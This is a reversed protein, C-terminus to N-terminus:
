CATPAPPLLPLVRARRHHSAWYGASAGHRLAFEAPARASSRVLEVGNGALAVHPAGDADEVEAMDTDSAEAGDAEPEDRQQARAGSRKAFQALAAEAEEGHVEEWDDGSHGGSTLRLAPAPKRRARAGKTATKTTL